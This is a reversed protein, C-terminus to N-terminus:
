IRSGLVARRLYVEEIVDRYHDEVVRRKIKQTASLEGSDITFEKSLVAIQRIKEHPALGRTVEDVRQQLLSQVQPNAVLEERNEFKIGRSRACTELRDFVPVLLAAVFRRANGLVMIQSIYPHGQFLNEIKEPSVYKGGSTKFLNKKRGTITLFGDADLTGLDGTCFWGDQFAGRNEEELHYYGPTVNPGRVMIERGAGGEEDVVPDDLKVAVGPIVRGVTGLKLCGPYNVAIVPSTETLGYGEYVPLGMAYFFETLERSLPAAGSILVAVRGGLRARVRSCVLADAIAHKLRLGFPPARQELRYPFYQRGVRVAWRFLNQQARSARRVTEMVKEHIKELVRPVVAFVTPRVERLNQPLAEFSEAYAISVGQWLYQYDLMREFIHSLPLFSLAVDNRVLPFLGQSAQINSVINAHTLIVGKSKGMTGSTYLISATEEPRTELAKERFSEILDTARQLEDRIIRHWSQVVSGGSHLNDLTLIFSLDPRINTVKKLQVETSVVIGKSGSDRLIYEIDPELLTPYIPVLIAGVGLVAYDTLAWELRNEALIAVRDGRRIDLRELGAALAAVKRLAEQSSLSRYRGDSKSLFADPKPRNEVSKLFLENLTKFEGSGFSEPSSM